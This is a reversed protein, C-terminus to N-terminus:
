RAPQVPVSNVDYTLGYAAAVKDMETGHSASATIPNQGGWFVISNFILGDGLLTIAYVPTLLLYVGERGWNNHIDGNWTYLNRTLQFPGYCSTTLATLTLLTALVGLKFSKRM